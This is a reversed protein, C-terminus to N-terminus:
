EGRVPDFPPSGAGAEGVASFRVVGTQDVYFQGFNRNPDRPAAVAHWREDTVEKVLRYDHPLPLLPEYGMSLINFGSNLYSNRGGKKRVEMAQGLRVLRRHLERRAIITQAKEKPPMQFTPGQQEWWKQFDEPTTEAPLGTLRWLAERVKGTIGRPMKFRPLLAILVEVAEKSWADSLAEVVGMIQRNKDAAAALLVRRADPGGCVALSGLYQYENRARGGDVAEALLKSARPDAHERFYIAAEEAVVDQDELLRFMAQRVQEADCHQLLRAAERRENWDGSKLRALAVPVAAERQAESM